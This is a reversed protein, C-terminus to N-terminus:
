PSRPTVSDEPSDPSEGASNTASVVYYYTEGNKVGKDVLSTGQVAAVTHYPGGKAMSRKVNYSTAGFSELWRLPVQGDGPGGYIAFPAAPKKVQEVGGGGTMRVTDFTATAPKGNITSCVFLGLCATKGMGPFLGDEIPTWSAGDPSHWCTIREGVRELKLWHPIAANEHSQSSSDHSSHSFGRLDTEVCPGKERANPTSWVAM